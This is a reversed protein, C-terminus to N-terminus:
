QNNIIITIVDITHTLCCSKVYRVHGKLEVIYYDKDFTGYTTLVGGWLFILYFDGLM